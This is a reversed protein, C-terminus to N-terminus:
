DHNARRRWRVDGSRRAECPSASMQRVPTLLTRVATSAPYICAVQRLTASTTCVVVASLGVVDSATFTFRECTNRPANIAAAGNVVSSVVRTPPAWATTSLAFLGKTSVADPRLTSSALSPSPAVGLAPSGM